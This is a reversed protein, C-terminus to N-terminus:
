QINLKLNSWDQELGTEYDADIDLKGAAIDAFM